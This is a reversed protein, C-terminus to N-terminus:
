FDVRKKYSVVGGIAFKIGISYQSYSDKQNGITFGDLGDGMIFNYQYGLDIKFGPQDYRNFFKFEYGFRVPILIQSSNDEGPTYFGPDLISARNIEKMHNIVFGVGTSAYLNKLANAFKSQSYDIIEGAQLQARFMVAAFNNTFQRGTSTTLSDGGKLEGFQLEVVYNVYPSVNYNFNFHASKTPTVTQADTYAKNMDLGIGLDYQAYDNGIQAKASYCLLCSCVTILTIKLCNIM